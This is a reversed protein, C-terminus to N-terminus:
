PCYRPRGPYFLIAIPPLYRFLKCKFCLEGKENHLEYVGQVPHGLGEGIRVYNEM